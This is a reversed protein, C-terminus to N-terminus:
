AALYAKLEEPDYKDAKRINDEAWLPQLNTYHCLKILEDETKAAALPLRHDIHWQGTNNWGMGTAFQSELHLSLDNYSCGIIKQTRSKKTYNKNNCAKFVLAKINHKLRFLNDSALRNQMYTKQRMRAADSTAITRCRSMKSKYHEPLIWWEFNKHALHYSWFVMGNQNNLDGRQLTKPHADYASRRSDQREKHELTLKKYKIVDVWYENNKYTKGTAWFVMGDDRVDGRKYKKEKKM